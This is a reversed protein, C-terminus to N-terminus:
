ETKSYGWDLHSLFRIYDRVTSFGKVQRERDEQCSVCLTAVPRATLRKLAIPEECEECIGFEGAEIQELAHNIQQLLIADREYLSCRFAQSETISALDLEDPANSTEEKSLSMLSEKANELLKGKMARLVAKFRKLDDLSLSYEEPELVDDRKM